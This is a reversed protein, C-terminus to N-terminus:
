FMPKPMFIFNPMIQKIKHQLHTCTQISNSNSTNYVHIFNCLQIDWKITHRMQTSTNYVHIFNCLHMAYNYTENSKTNLHTCIQIFNSNSDSTNYVHILNSNSNSTNCRNYTENLHIAYKYPILTTQITYM